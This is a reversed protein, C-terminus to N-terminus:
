CYFDVYICPHTLLKEKVSQEWGELAAHLRLIYSLLTAESIRQGIMTTLMKQVRNIAVMQQKIKCHNVAAKAPM